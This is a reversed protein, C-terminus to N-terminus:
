ARIRYDRLWNEACLFCMLAISRADEGDEMKSMNGETVLPIRSTENDNSTSSRRTRWMSSHASCRAPANASSACSARCEKDEEKLALDGEKQEKRINQFKHFNRAM